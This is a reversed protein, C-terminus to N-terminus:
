PLFKLEADNTIEVYAFDWGEEIDYEALFTLNIHIANSLNISNITTMSGDYFVGNEGGFGSYFARRQFTTYMKEYSFNVEIQEQDYREPYIM